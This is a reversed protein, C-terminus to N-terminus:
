LEVKPANAAEKDAEFFAKPTFGFVGAILNKPFSKILINWDRVQTNYRDRAIAVRNETGALEDTLNQVTAYSKLEPYNEMIVLLRSLAGEYQNM